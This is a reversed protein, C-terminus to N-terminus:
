AKGEKGKERRRKRIVVAAVVLIIVFAVVFVTPLFLEGSIFPKATPAPSPTAAMNQMLPYRDQNKPDIVYPTDGLGDGNQDTGNYDTWFNGQSGNDWTHIAETLNYEECTCGTFQVKNHVLSNGSLTINLPITGPSNIGLFVGEENNAIYNGTINNTDGSLLVGVINEAVANGTVTNNSTWVYIGVYFGKINLNKVTINTPKAAASFDIGITWLSTNDSAQPPGQVIMWGDPKSGNYTGQLTYGAGDLVIGSREVVVLGFLDGTFIYCDGVRQMPASAPSISGDSRIHVTQLSAQGFTPQATFLGAFVALTLFALTAKRLNRKQM